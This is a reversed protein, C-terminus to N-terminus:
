AQELLTVAQMGETEDLSCSKLIAEINAIRQCEEIALEINLRKPSQGFICRFNDQLIAKVVEKPLGLAHIIGDEPPGLLFDAEEARELDASLFYFDPKNQLHSHTDFEEFAQRIVTGDGRQSREYHCCRYPQM